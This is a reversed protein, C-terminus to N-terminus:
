LDIKLGIIFLISLLAFLLWEHYYAKSPKDERWEEIGRLLFIGGFLLIMLVPSVSQFKAQLFIWFIILLYIISEMAIYIKKRGEDLLGKHKIKFRKKVYFERICFFLVM